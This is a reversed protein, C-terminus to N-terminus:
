ADKVEKAIKKEILKDAQNRHMTTRTGPKNFKAGDLYEVLVPEKGKVKREINEAKKAM